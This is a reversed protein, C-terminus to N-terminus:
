LQYMYMYMYKFQFLDGIIDLACSWMYHYNQVYYTAGSLAM